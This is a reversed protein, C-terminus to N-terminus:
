PERRVFELNARADDPNAIPLICIVRSLSADLVFAQAGDWYGARWQRVAEIIAEDSVGVARLKEASINGQVLLVGGVKPDGCVQQALSPDWIGLAYMGALTRFRISEDSAVVSRNCCALISILCACLGTVMARRIKAYHVDRMTVETMSQKQESCMVNM